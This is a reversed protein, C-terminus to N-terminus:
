YGNRWFYLPGAFTVTGTFSPAALNAKLALSSQLDTQNTITGTIGGWAVSTTGGSYVLSNVDNLWSAEILTVGDVFTTSAM